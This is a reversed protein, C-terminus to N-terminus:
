AIVHSYLYELENSVAVTYSPPHEYPPPPSLSGIIKRSFVRRADWEMGECDLELEDDDVDDCLCLDVLLLKM